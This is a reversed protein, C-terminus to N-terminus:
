RDAHVIGAPYFENDWLKMDDLALGRVVGVTEFGWHGFYANGKQLREPTGATSWPERAYWTLFKGLYTDLARVPDKAGWAKTLAVGQSKHLYTESVPFDPRRLAILLGIPRDDHVAKTASLVDDFVADEVQLAVSLSILWLFERYFGIDAGRGGRFLTDYQTPPYAERALQEREAMLRAVAPLAECLEAQSAGRSYAASFWAWRDSIAIGYAAAVAAPPLIGATRADKARQHASTALENALAERAVFYEESARSDRM